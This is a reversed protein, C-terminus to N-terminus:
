GERAPTGADHLWTHARIGPAGRDPAAGSLDLRLMLLRDRV